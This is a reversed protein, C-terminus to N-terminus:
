DEASKTKYAVMDKRTVDWVVLQLLHGRRCDDLRGPGEDLDFSAGGQNFGASGAGSPEPILELIMHHSGIAEETNDENDSTTSGASAVQSHDMKMSTTVSAVLERIACPLIPGGEIEFGAYASTDNEDQSQQKAPYVDLRKMSAHLFPGIKRCLILPLDELPDMSIRGLSNLYMEFFLSVDDYGSILFTPSKQNKEARQNNNATTTKFKVSVDAGATDARRLAELDAKVTPSMPLTSLKPSVSFVTHEDSSIELVEIQSVGSDQLQQRFTQSSGSLLVQPKFCPEGTRSARFLAVHDNAKCYFYCDMMELRNDTSLTFEELERYWKSYASRLAQQWERHRHRILTAPDNSKTRKITATPGKVSQILSTALNTTAPPMKSDEISATLLSEDRKKKDPIKKPLQQPQLLSAPLPTSPYQWYVLSSEWNESPTPLCRGPYCELKLQQKLSWDLIHNGLTAEHWDDDQDIIKPQAESDREDMDLRRRKRNQSPTFPSTTATSTTPSTTWLKRKAKAPSQFRFPSNGVLKNVINMITNGSPSLMMSAKNTTTDGDGNEQPGNKTPTMFSANTKKQPSAFKKMVSCFLSAGRANLKSKSNSPENESAILTSQSQKGFPLSSNEGGRSKSTLNGFLGLSRRRIM